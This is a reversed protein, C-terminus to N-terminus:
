TCSGEPSTSLCETYCHFSVQYTVVKVFRTLIIIIQEFRDLSEPSPPMAKVRCPDDLGVPSGNLDAIVQTFVDVAVVLQKDHPKGPFASPRSTKVTFTRVPELVVQAVGLM